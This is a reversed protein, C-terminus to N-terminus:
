RGSAGKHRKHGREGEMGLGVYSSFNNIDFYILKCNRFKIYNESPSRENLLSKVTMWNTTYILLRHRRIASCHEATHIYWLLSPSAVHNIGGAPPAHKSQERHKTVTCLAARFIGTSTKYPGHIKLERPLVQCHCQTM